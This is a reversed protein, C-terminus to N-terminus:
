AWWVNYLPIQHTKTSSPELSLKCVCWDTFEPFLTVIKRNLFYVSSKKKSNSNKQCSAWILAFTTPGPYKDKTVPFIQRRNWQLKRYLSFVQLYIGRCDLQQWLSRAQLSRVLCCISGTFLYLRYLLDVVKWEFRLSNHDANVDFVCPITTMHLHLIIKYVTTEMQPSFISPYKNATM